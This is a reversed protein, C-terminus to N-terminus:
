YTAPTVDVFIFYYFCSDTNNADDGNRM